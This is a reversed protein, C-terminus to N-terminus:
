LCKDSGYLPQHEPGPRTNACESPGDKEMASCFLYVFPYSRNEPLLVTSFVGM